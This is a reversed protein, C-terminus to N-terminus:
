PTEGPVPDTGTAPLRWALQALIDGVRDRLAPDALLAQRVPLSLALVLIRAQGSLAVVPGEGAGGAETSTPGRRVTGWTHLLPTLAAVAADALASPQLAGPTSVRAAEGTGSAGMGEIQVFLPDALGDAIGTVVAQLVSSSLESAAHPATGDSGVAGEGPFRGTPLCLARTAGEAFLRTAVPGTDPDRWPHPVVLVLPAPGEGLRLVYLGDSREAESRLIAWGANAELVLDADRAERSLRTPPVGGPAAAALRGALSRVIARRDAPVPRSADDYRLTEAVRWLDVPAPPVPADDAVARGAGALVLPLALRPLLRRM